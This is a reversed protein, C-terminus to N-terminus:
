EMLLVPKIAKGSKADAFAQNIEAFPYTAILRDVPFEGRAHRQLLWPLFVRPDTAGVIVCRLSGARMFFQNLHSEASPYPEPVTVLALEGGMAIYSIANGIAKENGSTDLVYDIGDPFSSKIAKDLGPDRADFVLRAGFERALSLREPNVDIAVVDRLGIVKAAMIASMGVAGVGVVAISRRKQQQVINVVAGAGTLVGCPLAALLTPSLTRDVKILNTELTIAHQAFSSQQFFASTIALGDAQISRSGDSRAGSFKLDIISECIYPRASRCNACSGCSPFSVVVSDGPAVSRVSSGVREVLGAGEHGLVSPVSLAKMAYSDTHCIGCAQIRILVENSRLDDLEVNEIAFRERPERLVAAKTSFVM